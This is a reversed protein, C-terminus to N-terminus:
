GDSVEDSFQIKHIDQLYRVRRQREFEKEGEDVAELMAKNLGSPIEGNVAVDVDVNRDQTTNKHGRMKGDIKRNALEQIDTVDLAGFGIRRLLEQLVMIDGGISYSEENTAGLRQAIVAFVHNINELMGDVKDATVLDDWIRGAIEDFVVRHCEIYDDGVTTFDGDKDTHLMQAIRIVAKDINNRTHAEKILLALRDSIPLEVPTKQDGEVIELSDKLPDVNVGYNNYLHAALHHKIIDPLALSKDWDLDGHHECVEKLETIAMEREMVLHALMYSPNNGKDGEYGIRKICELLVVTNNVKPDDSNVGNEKAIRSMLRNIANRKNSQRDTFMLSDIPIESGLNNQKTNAQHHKGDDLETMAAGIKDGCFPCHSFIFEEADDTDSSAPIYRLCCVGDSELFYGEYENAFYHEFKNCCYATEANNQKQHGQFVQELENPRGVDEWANGMQCEWNGDTDRRYHNFYHNVVEEEDLEIYFYQEVVKKISKIKM